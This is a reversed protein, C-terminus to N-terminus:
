NQSLAQFRINEQALSAVSLLAYVQHATKACAHVPISTICRRAKRGYHAGLIASRPHGKKRGEEEVFDLSVTDEFNRRYCLRCAKLGIASSHQATRASAHGRLVPFSYNVYLVNFWAPWIPRLSSNLSRGTSFSSAQKM